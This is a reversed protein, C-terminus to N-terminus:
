NMIHKYQINKITKIVCKRYEYLPKDIISVDNEDMFTIKDLGTPHLKGYLMYFRFYTLLNLMERYFSEVREVEFDGQDVHLEYHYSIRPKYLVLQISNPVLDYKKKYKTKTDSGIKNHIKKIMDPLVIKVLDDKELAENFKINITGEGGMNYEDPAGNYDEIETVMMMLKAEEAAKILLQYASIWDGDISVQPLKEHQFKEHWFHKDNCYKNAIKNTQCLNNLTKLDANLMLNYIIDSPLENKNSLSKKSKKSKTNLRTLEIRLNAVGGIKDGIEKQTKNKYKRHTQLEKLIQGRNLTSVEM